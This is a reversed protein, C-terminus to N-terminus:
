APRGRVVLEEGERAVLTELRSGRAGLEERLLAHITDLEDDSRDPAHHFFALRRVGAEEALRIAQGFTSHGWGERAPYEADTYMADHILLDVGHLFAVLADYPSGGDPYSGGILESDPVFAITAEGARLRYGMTRGPHRVPIAAVEVGDSRWPTETVPLFELEAEIAEWPVPFYPRSMQGALIERVASGDRAPAHIRLRTRPDYLPTFFPLGQIHDWHFHSLFLDADLPETSAALREGLPRIGTGADFILTRGGARVELCSTNGGYGATAPGPSAISGRAGWFRVEVVSADDKTSVVVTEREPRQPRDPRM